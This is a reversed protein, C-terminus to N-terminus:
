QWSKILKYIKNNGKLLMPFSTYLCEAYMQSPLNNLITRLTRQRAFQEGTTVQFRPCGKGAHKNKALVTKVCFPFCLCQDDM